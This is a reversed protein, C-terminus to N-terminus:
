DMNTACNKNPTHQRINWEAMVKEINDLLEEWQAQNFTKIHANFIQLHMFMQYLDTETLWDKVYFHNKFISAEIKGNQFTLRVPFDKQIVLPEGLVKNLDSSQCLIHPRPFTM